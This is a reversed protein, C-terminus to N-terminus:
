AHRYVRRSQIPQNILAYRASDYPDGFSVITVGQGLGVSDVQYENCHQRLVVCPHDYSHDKCYLQGCDPCAMFPMKECVVCRIIGEKEYTPNGGCGKTESLPANEEKRDAALRKDDLCPRQTAHLGILYSQQRSNVEALKNSIEGLFDWVDQFVKSGVM